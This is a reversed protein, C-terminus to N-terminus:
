DVEEIIKRTNDVPVIEEEEDSSSTSCYTAEGSSEQASYIHQNKRSTKNWLTELEEKKMLMEKPTLM